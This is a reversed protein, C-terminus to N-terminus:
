HPKLFALAYHSAPIVHQTETDAPPTLQSVTTPALHTACALKGEKSFRLNRGGHIILLAPFIGRKQKLKGLGPLTPAEPLGPTNVTALVGPSVPQMASYFLSM